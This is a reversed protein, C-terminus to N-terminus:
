RTGRKGVIQEMRPEGAKVSFVMSSPGREQYLVIWQCAVPRQRVKQIEEILRQHDQQGRPIWFQRGTIQSRASTSCKCMGLSHRDMRCFFQCCWATSPYRFPPARFRTSSTHFVTTSISYRTRGHLRVYRRQAQLRLVVVWIQQWILGM